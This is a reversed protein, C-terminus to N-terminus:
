PTKRQQNWLQLARSGCWAWTASVNDRENSDSPQYATLMGPNPTTSLPVISLRSSVFYADFTPCESTPLLTCSVSNAYGRFMLLPPLRNHVPIGKALVNSFTWQPLVPTANIVFDISRCLSLRKSLTCNVGSWIHGAVAWKGLCSGTNSPTHHLFWGGLYVRGTAPLRWDWQTYEAETGYWAM